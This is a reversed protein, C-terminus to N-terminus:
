LNIHVRLSPSAHGLVRTNSGPGTLFFILNLMGLFFVCLTVCVCVCVRACLSFRVCMCATVDDTLVIVDGVSAESM